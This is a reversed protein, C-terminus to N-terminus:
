TPVVVYTHAVRFATTKLQKPKFSPTSKSWKPGFYTLNKRWLKQTEVPSGVESLNWSTAM